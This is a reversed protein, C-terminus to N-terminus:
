LLISRNQSNTKCQFGFLKEVFMIGSKLLYQFTNKFFICLFLCFYYYAIYGIM